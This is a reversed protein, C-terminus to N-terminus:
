SDAGVGGTTGKGLAVTNGFPRDGIELRIVGQVGGETEVDFRPRFRGQIVHGSCEAQAAGTSTIPSDFCPLAEDFQFRLRYAGTFKLDAAFAPAALGVAVAGVLLAVFFKRMM